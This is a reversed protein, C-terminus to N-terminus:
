SFNNFLKLRAKVVEEMLPLVPEMVKYPAIQAPQDALGKETAARWARRLETSIHIVRIGASIAATFDADPVGSGGHLVLPKQTAISIEEIRDIFLNPNKGRALMGHVNGVAPAFL